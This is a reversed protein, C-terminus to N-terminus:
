SDVELAPFKGMSSGHMCAVSLWTSHFLPEDYEDFALGLTTCTDIKYIRCMNKGDAPLRDDWIM